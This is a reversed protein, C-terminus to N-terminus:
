ISNILRNNENMKYYINARAQAGKIYYINRLLRYIVIVDDYNLFGFLWCAQFVMINAKIKLM